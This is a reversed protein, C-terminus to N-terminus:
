THPESANFVSLANCLCWWWRDGSGKWRGLSSETGLWHYSKIIGERRGRAAEERSGMDIFRVARQVGQFHVCAANTRNHRTSKVWWWTTLHWGCQIHGFTRGKQPWITNWQISPGCQTYGRIRWFISLHSTKSNPEQSSDKSCANSPFISM